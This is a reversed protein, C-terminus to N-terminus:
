RTRRDGRKWPLMEVEGGADEIKARASDSIRHTKVKLPIDIEGRGLVVILDDEHKIMGVEVLSKPTVEAGAEFRWVLEDINIPEFELHYPNSFGHGRV